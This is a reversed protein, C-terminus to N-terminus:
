TKSALAIEKVAENPSKLRYIRRRSDHPDLETLLWGRKRMSSLVNNINADKGKIAKRVDGYTFEGGKTKSWIISYKVMLSSSLPMIMTDYQYKLYIYSYDNM